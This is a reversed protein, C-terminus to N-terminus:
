YPLLWVVFSAGLSIMGYNLLRWQFLIGVKKMVLLFCFGHVCIGCFFSSKQKVDCEVSLLKTM